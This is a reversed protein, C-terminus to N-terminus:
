LINGGVSEILLTERLTPDFGGNASDVSFFIADEFKYDDPVKTPLLGTFTKFVRNFNRITNFGCAGAIDAITMEKNNQIMEVAKSVKVTNIYEVFVMGSMKHFYKSFYVKSMCLFAAADDSSYYRYRQEIDDLLHMFATKEQKKIEPGIVEEERFIRIITGAILHEVAREHFNQKELLENKVSEYLELFDYDHKLVPCALQKNKILGKLLDYSFIIMYVEAKSATKICHGEMNGIYMAQGEGLTYRAGGTYVELSGSAVYVLECDYHWHLINNLNMYKALYVKVDGTYERVEHKAVM